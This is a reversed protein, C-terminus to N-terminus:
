NPLMDLCIIRMDEGSFPAGEAEIYKRLNAEWEEIRVMVEALKHAKEPNRVM